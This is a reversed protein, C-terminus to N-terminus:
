SGQPDEGSANWSTTESERGQPPSIGAMLSRGFM